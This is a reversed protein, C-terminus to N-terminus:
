FILSFLFYLLKKKNQLGSLQWRWNGTAMQCLSLLACFKIQQTAISLALSSFLPSFLPANPHTIVVYIQWIAEKFFNESADCCGAVPLSRPM